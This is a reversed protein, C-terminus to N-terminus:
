GFLDLQEEDVPPRRRKKATSKTGPKAGSRKTALGELPLSLSVPAAIEAADACAFQATSAQGDGVPSPVKKLSLRHPKTPPEGALAQQERQETKGSPNPAQADATNKRRAKRKPATKPTQNSPQDSAQEPSFEPLNESTALAANDSAAVPETRRVVPQEIPPEAPPLPEGKWDIGEGRQMKQPSHDHVPLFQAWAAAADCYAVGKLYRIQMAQQRLWAASFCFEVEAVALWGVPSRVQDDILFWHLGQGERECPVGLALCGDVMNRLAPDQSELRSKIVECAGQTLVQRACQTNKARIALILKM